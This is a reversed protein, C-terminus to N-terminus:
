MIIDILHTNHGDKQLSDRGDGWYLDLSSIVMNGMILSLHLPQLTPQCVRTSKFGPRM